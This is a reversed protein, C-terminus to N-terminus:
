SDDNSVSIAPMRRLVARLPKMKSTVQPSVKERLELDGVLSDLIDCVTIHESQPGTFKRAGILDAGVERM